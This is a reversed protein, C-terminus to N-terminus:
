SHRNLPLTTCRFLGGMRGVSEMPCPILDYGLSELANGVRQFRPDILITRADLHLLNSQLLAAEEISIDIFSSHKYKLADLQKQHLFAEPAFIAEGGGLPMYACDLHLANRLPDHDDKHLEIEIVERHPFRKRLFEAAEPNTRATQRDVLDPHRTVGIAIADELLLVDGGEVRVEEPFEEVTVHTLMPALGAWEAQRDQIMRSRFFVDEMVLGVDRAFVQELATVDFPRLVEVGCSELTRSLGDLEAAVAAESPYTGAELNQRSTPDYATEVTPRNGMDRGHGVIVRKLRGWETHVHLDM